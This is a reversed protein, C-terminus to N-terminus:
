IFTQPLDETVGGSLDDYMEWDAHIIAANFHEGAEPYLVRNGATWAFTSNAVGWVDGEILNSSQGTPHGPFAGHYIDGEASGLTSDDAVGFLHAHALQLPHGATVGRLQDLENAGFFVNGGGVHIGVFLDHGPDHVGVGHVHPLGDGAYDGALREIDASGSSPALSGSAADADHAIFGEAVQM